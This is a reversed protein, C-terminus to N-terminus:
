PAAVSDFEILSTWEGADPAVARAPLGGALSRGAAALIAPSALGLYTALREVDQSSRFTDIRYTATSTM